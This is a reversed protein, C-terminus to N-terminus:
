QVVTLDLARNITKSSHRTQVRFGLRHNINPDLTLVYSPKHNLLEEPEFALNHKHLIENSPYSMHSLKTHSPSFSVSAHSLEEEGHVESEISDHPAQESTSQSQRAASHPDAHDVRTCVKHDRSNQTGDDETFCKWTQCSRKGEEKRYFVSM